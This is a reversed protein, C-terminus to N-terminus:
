APRLTRRVAALLEATSYPKRLLAIGVSRAITEEEFTGAYGTSFLVPLAPEMARLSEFVERGTRKPMVM